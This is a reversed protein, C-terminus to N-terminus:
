SSCPPATPIGGDTRLLLQPPSLAPPYINLRSGSCWGGTYRSEDSVPDIYPLTVVEPLVPTMITTPDTRYIGILLNPSPSQATFLPPSPPQCPSPPPPYYPLPPTLPWVHHTFPFYLNIYCSLVIHVSCLEGRAESGPQFVVVQIHTHSKTFPPWNYLSKLVIYKAKITEEHYYMNWTSFWKIVLTYHDHIFFLELGM